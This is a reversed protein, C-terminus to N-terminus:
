QKGHLVALLLGQSKSIQGAGNSVMGAKGGQEGSWGYDGLNRPKQERPVDGAISGTGPQSVLEPHSNRNLELKLSGEQWGGWGRHQVGEM